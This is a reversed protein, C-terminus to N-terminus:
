TTENGLILGMLRDVDLSRGCFLEADERSYPDLYKYPREKPNLVMALQEQRQSRAMLARKALEVLESAVDSVLLITLGNASMRRAAVTDEVQQVLAFDRRQRQPMPLSLLNYFANLDFLENIDYGVFLWTSRALISGCYSIFLGNAHLRHNFAVEELIMESPAAPSGLLCM